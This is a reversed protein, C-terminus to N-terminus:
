WLVRWTATFLMIENKKHSLLIGSYIHAVDEKDMSQHPSVQTAETDQSNYIISSHVSPHICKKKKLNTSTKKELYVDLLLIAPDHWLETKLTRLLRRVKNGCHSCWNVRGGVTYLPGNKWMRALKQKRHVKQHRGNQRTPPTIESHNQNTNGQCGTISLM